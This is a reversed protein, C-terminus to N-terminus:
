PYYSLARAVQLLTTQTLGRKMGASKDEVGSCWFKEGGKCKNTSPLKPHMWDAVTVEEKRITRPAWGSTLILWM